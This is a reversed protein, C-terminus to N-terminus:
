APAGTDAELLDERGLAILLQRHRADQERKQKQFRTEVFACIAAAAIWILVAMDM